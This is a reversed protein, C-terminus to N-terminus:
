TAVEGLDVNINSAISAHRSVWRIQGPIAELLLFLSVAMKSHHAHSTCLRRNFPPRNWRILGLAPQRHERLVQVLLLLHRRNLPERLMVIVNLMWQLFPVVARKKGRGRRLWPLLVRKFDVDVPARAALCADRCAVTEVTQVLVLRPARNSKEVTSCGLLRNLLGDRRGTVVTDIGAAHFPARYARVFFVGLGPDDFVEIVLTNAALVADEGARVFDRLEVGLEADNTFAVHAGIAEFVTFCGRANLRAGVFRDCNSGHRDRLRDLGGLVVGKERAGRRRARGNWCRRIRRFIRHRAVHQGSIKKPHMGRM